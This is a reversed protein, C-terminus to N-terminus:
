GLAYNAANEASTKEVARDFVVMVSDLRGGGPQDNDYIPFADLATPPNALGLDDQSRIQIRHNQQKLDFVGQVSSLITGIPPPDINTLTRGGSVVSDAGAGPWVRD